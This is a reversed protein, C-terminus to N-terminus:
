IPHHPPLTNCLIEHIDLCYRSMKLRKTMKVNQAVVTANDLPNHRHRDRAMYAENNRSGINEYVYNGPGNESRFYFCSGIQLALPELLEGVRSCLHSSHNTKM